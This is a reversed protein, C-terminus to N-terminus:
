LPTIIKAVCLKLIETSELFFHSFLSNYNLVNHQFKMVHTFCLM